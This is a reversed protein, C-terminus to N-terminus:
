VRRPPLPGRGAACRPGGSEPTPGRSLAKAEAAVTSLIEEVSPVPLAGEGPGLEQLIRAGVALLPGRGGPRPPSPGGVAAGNLRAQQPQQAGAAAAVELQQLAATSGEPTLRLGGFAVTQQADYAHLLDLLTEALWEAAAGPTGQCQQVGATEEPAAARGGGGGGGIGVHPELGRPHAASECSAAKGPGGLPPARAQKLARSDERRLRSVAFLVFAAVGNDLACGMGGGGSAAAAGKVGAARGGPGRARPPKVPGLQLSGTPKSGGPPQQRPPSSAPAAPVLATAAALEMRAAKLEEDLAAVREALQCVAAQRGAGDGDGGCGAAQPQGASQMQQHEGCGSASCAHQVASLEGQCAASEQAADPDEACPELGVGPSAGRSLPSCRGSGAAEDLTQMCLLTLLPAPSTSRSGPPSMECDGCAACGGNAAAVALAAAETGEERLKALIAKIIRQLAANKRTV